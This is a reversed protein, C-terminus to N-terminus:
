SGKGFHWQLDGWFSFSSKWKGVTWRGLLYSPSSLSFPFFLILLNKDCENEALPLAAAAPELWAINRGVFASFSSQESKEYMVSGLKSTSAAPKTITERRIADVQWILTPSLIPKCVSFEGSRVALIGLRCMVQWMHPRRLPVLPIFRSILSAEFYKRATPQHGRETGDENPVYSLLELFIGLLEHYWGDM